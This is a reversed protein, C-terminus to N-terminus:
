RRTSLSRITHRKVVKRLSCQRGLRHHRAGIPRRRRHLLDRAGLLQAQLEGVLDHASGKGGARRKVFGIDRAAEANRARRHPFCQALEHCATEDFRTSM